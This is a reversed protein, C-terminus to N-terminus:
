RVACSSTAGDDEIDTHEVLLVADAGRPLMAGTAITTATQARVEIAPVVGTPLVEDNLRLRVPKEEM